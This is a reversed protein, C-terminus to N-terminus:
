LDNNQLLLKWSNIYIFSNIWRDADDLFFVLDYKDQRDLYEQDGMDAHHSGKVLLAYDILPISLVIEGEDNYVTVRMDQGKVLRATTLEAVCASVQTIARTQPVDVGATGSYVHHAIYTIREDEMLSNDWDMKGNDDSLTFTFKDKDVPKGSLHQLVINVDNTDKVLPLTIIHEGYTDPFVAVDVKGHYLDSIDETVVPGTHFPNRHLTCQLKELARTEPIIFDRYAGDGCWAMLTYKGPEIDVDMMYSGTKLQPGSETRHWVVDGHEDVVYLTVANVEHPFADAFKMNMDYIFRVKYHPNCDDSVKDDFLLKDCSALMLGFPFALAPVIYKTLSRITM